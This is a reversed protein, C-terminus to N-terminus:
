RKPTSSQHPPTIRRATTEKWQKWLVYGLAPANVVAAIPVLIQADMGQVLFPLYSLFSVVQYAIPIMWMQPFYFFAIISLVDAAYFYRDHMKPLVFPTLAASALAALLILAPTVPYKKGGYILIWAALVVSALMSGYVLSSSYMENPLFFYPNAANLSPDSFEMSQRIYAFALSPISRGAAVAPLMMVFYAAPILLFASRPIRKKLFLVTLLPLLFATQAKVAFGIGFAIVGAVPRDKMLYYVSLLIFCAYLGDIQGWFSSNVAVTPALWFLVSALLPKTKDQFGVGVIKYVLRANITDFAIPILKIATVKDLFSRTLAALSLLYLYPPTYIAFEDGIAAAGKEVIHDYWKMYGLMDENLNPINLLRLALGVAFLAIVLRPSLERDKAPPKGTHPAKDM